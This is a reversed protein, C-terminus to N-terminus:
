KSTYTILRCDNPQVNKYPTSQPISPIDSGKIIRVASAAASGAMFITKRCGGAVKNRSHLNPAPYHTNPVPYQPIRFPSTYPLPCPACLMPCLASLLPRLAHPLPCIASLVLFESPPIRFASTYPLPGPAFSQINLTRREGLRFDPSSNLYFGDVFNQRCTAPYGWNFFIM